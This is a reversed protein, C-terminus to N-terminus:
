PNRVILPATPNRVAQRVGCTSRTRGPRFSTSGNAPFATLLPDQENLSTTLAQRSPM